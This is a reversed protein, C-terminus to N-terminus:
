CRQATSRESWPSGVTKLLPEVVASRFLDPHSLPADHRCGPLEIVPCGLEAAAHQMGKRHHAAGLGGYSTIVPVTIREASWPRNRRLDALEEVMAIGEDLRAKRTREPLEEWRGAGLMRRMFREAAERPKGAEAVAISGATTGPWWPEWSLPTEYVASAPVLDPHHRGRGLAVNGGYSHGVLVARRGALLEVLDASRRTWRSRAVHPSVLPWLRAPRLAAGPLRLRAAPQAEAHRGVSGDIRPDRRRPPADRTAPRRRGCVPRDRRRSRDAARRHVRRQRPRARRGAGARDAGTSSWATTCRRSSRTGCWSTPPRTPTSRCALTVGWSLALARVTAPDPSLGILRATPRFRRWRRATRGSRTCCLIAEAGADSRPWARRTPSRWRSGTPVKRCAATAAVARAPRGLACLRGGDRSARRDAGDDQRRQRSRAGIATEASLMLADTGDFVANAIDSVEARTPSPATIMSELMQTATIVPMGAEVCIRVIRKQMHPVDELPCEIGLDGRAVMSRTPRRSSRTSTSSRRCRRSRPSWGHDDAPCRCRAGQRSRRRRSRVVRRPLRRGRCGDGCCPRPGRTDAVPNAAAGVSPACGPSRPHAWRQPGSVRCRPRLHTRGAAHHRRRRDRDPRRRASRRALTEYDVGIVETSSAAVDPVLTVMSGAALLVGDGPFAAARIKPGPLDALVAVVCGTREAAERVAHLRAVHQALPGHSLNLRVVDVGASLMADLISPPDSAPGLTAVIKTRASM